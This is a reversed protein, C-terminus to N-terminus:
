VTVGLEHRLRIMGDRLRTKVTGVPVSLLQAIETHTLGGDYALAIAQRQPDSLQQMARGVRDREMVTAAADAVDDLVAYERIGVRLDRDHAAQASRIRDIARRKAMTIIWGIGRGRNPDFVAASQWVELFVEQTVEEAQSRDIVLRLVTGFVRSVVMDYLEGFAAQDGGAVRGLLQDVLQSTEAVDGSSAPTQQPHM